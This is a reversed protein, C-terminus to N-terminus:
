SEYLIGDYYYELSTDSYIVYKGTEPMHFHYFVISHTVKGTDIAKTEKMEVKLLVGHTEILRKFKIITGAKM